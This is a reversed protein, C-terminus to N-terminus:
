FRELVIPYIKESAMGTRNVRVVKSIISYESFEIHIAATECNCYYPIRFTMVGKGIEGSRLYSMRGHWYPKREMDEYAFFTVEQPYKSPKGTPTTPNNTLVSFYYTTMSTPTIKIDKPDIPFLMPLNCEIRTYIIRENLSLIDNILPEHYEESFFYVGNCEQMKSIDFIAM